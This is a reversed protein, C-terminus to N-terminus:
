TTGRTRLKHRLWARELRAREAATITGGGSGAARLHDLMTAVPVFWGGKAALRTMLRVFRPDPTTGDVFGSAFHTYMVCAGGAAELRDQNRESLARGFSRVDSGETSAFWYNVFPRAPDHYPMRPCRALTDVDGFVFNRVYRVRERCLDGWFYPSGPVHGQWRGPPARTLARYALRAPGSLRAEGWYLSDLSDAHNAHSYPDHGFHDRFAALGAAIEAREASAYSVGHLAIEFGQAQLSQAWARYAPDACTAGGITPDVAGRIPWVSKTTRFGLDALLGYVRTGVDRTMNDTDDFVTFAFTKGDPWRAPASM